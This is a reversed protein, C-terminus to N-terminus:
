KGISDLIGNMINEGAQNVSKDIVVFVLMANAGRGVLLTGINVAVGDM